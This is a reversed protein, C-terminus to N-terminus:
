KILVMKKTTTHQGATVRYFYIGSAAQTGSDDTGTWHVSTVGAASSGRMSKVVQGQVNYIEVTWDAPEPLYINFSTEPNFPNPYNQSVTFQSPRIGNTSQTVKLESGWYDSFQVNTMKLDGDGILPIEIMSGSGAIIKRNDMSYVLVRMTNGDIAYKVDMGEADGIAYPAGPTVREPDFEFVFWGAGIDVESDYDMTLKNNAVTERLVIEDAFNEIKPIPNADGSIVRMLYVLDGVTLTRGDANVDSAAIQGERNITFVTMGYIFYNTYLVADGIEYALENLNLDGRADIEDPHIICIGGDRFIVCRVPKTKGGAMCEDPAGRNPLRNSEPYNEEDFEDWIVQGRSDTILKDVYLSDGGVSSFANDGCDVWFFRIPFFLGGFNVDDTVRFTLRVISGSPLFADAPPHSAGNNIDAIAVVRVLGDPCPGYGCNGTPGYRFTFYEWDELAPGETASTFTFGTVDYEFMLDFGGIGTQADAYVDLTVTSNNFVCEDTEEISVTLCVTTDGCTDQYSVSVEVCTEDYDGCLDTVRYCFEYVSDVLAPTFCTTMTEPYFEGDGSIKEVTLMDDVDPDSVTLGVFCQEDVETLESCYNISLNTNTGSITPPSNFEITVNVTDRDSAGCVDTLEFVFQYSGVASPQFCFKREHQFLVGPVTGSVLRLTLNDNEDADAVELDFCVQEDAPGCLIVTTDEPATLEPANNIDVTVSIAKDIFDCEDEARVIFFYTGSTDATFCILGDSVDADGSVVSVTPETGDPDTASYAFCVDDGAFCASISTDPALTLVPHANVSVDITIQDEGFDECDDIARVTLTYTTDKTAYFCVEGNAFTGIDPIIEITVEGDDEWNVPFCISDPDCLDVTFDDPLTVVPETNLIIVISTAATDAAGCDDYVSFEFDFIGASEPLFCFRRAQQDLVGDPGSVKEITLTQFEDPDTVAIDFCVSDGLDCWFLTDVTPLEILPDTNLEIVVTGTDTDTLGCEDIVTLVFQYSGAEEPNFCVVGTESNFVGPGDVLEVSTINNDPDSYEVEFCIEDAMECLALLSDPVTISPPENLFVDFTVTDSAVAGCTDYASVIFQYPASELPTFCIEGTETNLEGPGMELVLDVPDGDPDGAEAFFCYEVAECLNLVSDAPLTVTPPSNLEVTVTATDVDGLGCEADYVRVEVDYTGEAEVSLCIENTQPDITAPPDVEITFPRESPNEANVFFCVEGPECLYASTDPVSVFYPLEALQVTVTVEGEPCGPPPCAQLCRLACCSDSARVKFTYAGDASPVFCIEGTVPDITGPGEVLEFEIDDGEPDTAEVFFCVESAGCVLTDFSEPMNLVPPDNYDYTFYMSDIDSNGNADTVQFVFLYTDDLWDPLFCHTGEISGEMTIPDFSGPGELMQLTLTDGLCNADYASIDFCVTDRDCANFTIDEGLDVVPDAETFRIKIILDNFDYDGGYKLDEFAVIYEHPNVGTAFLKAHDFGDRNFEPITYWTYGGSIGPQFYIAVNEVDADPLNVTDGAENDPGFLQWKSNSDAADAFGAYASSFSSSMEDMLIAINEGEPFCFDRWGLEDLDVDIEYGLSDLIDQLSPEDGALSLLSDLVAQEGGAASASNPVVLVFALLLLLGIPLKHLLNPM